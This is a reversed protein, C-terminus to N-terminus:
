SKEDRLLMADKLYVALRELQEMYTALDIRGPEFNFFDPEAPWFGISKDIEDVFSKRIVSTTFSM